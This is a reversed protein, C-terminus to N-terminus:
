SGSLVAVPKVVALDAKAPRARKPAPKGAAAATKAARPAPAPLAQRRALEQELREVLTRFVSVRAWRMDTAEVITWPAHTTNTKALMEEVAKLWRNYLRHQRRYEKTIKWRTLPDRLAERYRKKQEKKSIHLWLKIVVQHDDALWREFEEIQQYSERWKKKKVLKDCRDTLVRRYWSQVFVAMQGYNPLADQYRRLFHYRRELSSPPIGPYIRFLRPDLKETLRGVIDGKGAADWGELCIVTAIGAEKVAYQLKRLQEQLAPMAESYASKSLKKKLDLTELVPAEAVPKSFGPRVLDSTLLWEAV